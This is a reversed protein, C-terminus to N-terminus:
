GPGPAHCRDGGLPREVDGPFDLRKRNAPRLGGRVVGEAELLHGPFADHHPHRRDVVLAGGDVAPPHDHELGVLSSGDAEGIGRLEAAWTPTVPDPRRDSARLNHTLFGSGVILVGERRLPELARGFEFLTPADM